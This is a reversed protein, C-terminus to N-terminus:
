SKASRVREGDDLMVVNSSEPEATTLHTAALVEPVHTRAVRESTGDSLHAVWQRGAHSLRDIFGCRVITSRHLQVFSRSGLMGRVAHMTAHLLWQRGNSVLQVYDGNAVVKDVASQDLRMLGNATPVWLPRESKARRIFRKCVFSTECRSVLQAFPSALTKLWKNWWAMDPPAVELLFDFDGTSELAHLTNPSDILAAKLASVEAPPAHQEFELCLIIRLDDCDVSDVYTMM